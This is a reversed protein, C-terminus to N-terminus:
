GFDDPEEVLGAVRVVRGQRVAVPLQARGLPRARGLLERPQRALKVAQGVDVEEIGGSALLRQTGPLRCLPAHCSREFGARRRSAEMAWITWSASRRSPFNGRSSARPRSRTRRPRKAAMLSSWSASACPRVRNSPSYEVIPSRGHASCSGGRAQDAVEEVEAA